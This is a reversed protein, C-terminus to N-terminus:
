SRKAPAATSINVNTGRSADKRGMKRLAESKLQNDSEALRGARGLSFALRNTVYGNYRHSSLYPFGNLEKKLERQRAQLRVIRSIVQHTQM